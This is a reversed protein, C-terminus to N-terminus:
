TGATAEGIATADPAAADISAAGRAGYAALGVGTWFFVVIEPQLMASLTLCAAALAAAWAAALLASTALASGDPAAAHTPAAGAPATAARTAAAEALGRYALVVVGALAGLWALTFLPTGQLTTELYYSDVASGSAYAVPVWSGWPHDPRFRTWLWGWERARIMGTRDAMVGTSFVATLSALRQRLNGPLVPWALVLSSLGLAAASGGVVIARAGLRRDILALAAWMLCAAAVALLASRSSSLLVGAGGSAVMAVAWAPRRPGERRRGALLAAAGATLVLAAMMGYVNPNVMFGTARPYIFWAGVGAARAEYLRDLRVWAPGLVGSAFAVQVSAYALHVLGAAGLVGLVRDLVRAQGHERALACAILGFSAWQVHRLGPLAFSLPWDGALVGLIPLSVAMALYPVLPAALFTSVPIAEGTRVSWLAFGIVLGLWLVDGLTLAGRDARGAVSFVGALSLRAHAVAFVVLVATFADLPRRSSLLAWATLLAAAALAASWADLASM